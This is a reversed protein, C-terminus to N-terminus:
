EYSAAAEGAKRRLAAAEAIRRNREVREEYKIEDRDVQGCMFNFAIMETDDLNEPMAGCEAYNLLAMVIKGITQYNGAYSDVLIDRWDYYFMMSKRRVM